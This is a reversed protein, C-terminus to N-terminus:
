PIKTVACPAWSGDTDRLYFAPGRYRIQIKAETHSDAFVLTIQQDTENETHEFPLTMVGEATLVDDKITAHIGNACRLWVNISPAALTNVNYLLAILLCGKLRQM